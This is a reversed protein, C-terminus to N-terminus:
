VHLFLDFVIYMVIHVHQGPLVIRKVIYVCVHKRSVLLRWVRIRM